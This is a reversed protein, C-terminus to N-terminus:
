TFVVYYTFIVRSSPHFGFSYSAVMTFVRPMGVNKYIHGKSLNTVWNSEKM